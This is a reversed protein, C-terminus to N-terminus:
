RPSSLSLDAGDLRRIQTPAASVYHRAIRRFSRDLITVFGPLLDRALREGYLSSGVAIEDEGVSLGRTYLEDIKIKTGDDCALQGKLSECYLFRGDELRVIDHCSHSSLTKRRREHFGRDFEVIESPITRAGNHFMLYISDGLGLFSNIHANRASNRPAAPLIQHTKSRRWQADFELICQNNTDVVFFAGDFFDIQHCNYDIGEVLTEPETLRGNKHEYRVITGSNVDAKAEACTVTKFCYIGSGKVTVGFFHGDAVRRWQKRNVIYLGERSAM